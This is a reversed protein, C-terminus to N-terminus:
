KQRIADTSKMLQALLRRGRSRMAPSGVRTLHELLPIVRPRLDFNRLALDALAQMSSTKVISSADELYDMLISLATKEEGPDLCLRPLMQAVHWRVEQQKVAAVKHILTAKYPQLLDARKATVKEIADASRM